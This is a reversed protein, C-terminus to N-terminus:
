HRISLSSNSSLRVSSDVQWTVRRASKNDTQAIQIWAIEHERPEAFLRETLEDNTQATLTRRIRTPQQQTSTRDASEDCDHNPESLAASEFETCAYDDLGWWEHVVLVGPRPGKVADDWVLYGHCELDGDKYTVQKRKVEARVATALVLTCSITILTRFM